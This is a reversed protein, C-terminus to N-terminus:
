DYEQCENKESSVSDLKDRQNFAPHLATPPRQLDPIVPSMRSAQHATAELDHPVSITTVSPQKDFSQPRLSSQIANPLHLHFPGRKTVSSNAHFSTPEPQRMSGSLTAPTTFCDPAPPSYVVGFTRLQRGTIGTTSDCFIYTALINFLGLFSTLIGSSIVIRWMSLGLNEVKAAPKNLNGLVHFGLALMSLGLFVLGSGLSLLPWFKSFYSKFLTLESTLLFISATSVVFHSMGDFFFFNNNEFTMVLIIWMAVVVLILSIINAGRLINLTIYGIGALRPRSHM